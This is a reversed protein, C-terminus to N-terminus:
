AVLPVTVQAPIAMSEIVQETVKTKIDSAILTSSVQKALEEIIPVCVSNGMQRYAPTKTEPLIFTEPFGMLRSCERPTLMRPFDGDQLILNERGDKGYRSTLTNAIGDLNVINHRFGNGKARNRETRAQHSVWLRESITYKPDPHKELIDKVLRNTPTLDEFEFDFDLTAIMYIRRRRQPVKLSADVVKYTFNYGLEELSERVVKLTNGFDHKEFNAVNELFVVSPRHHKVIRLIEFFLNGQKEDDFGHARNLGARASVGARSFPQCPFGACIVDHAPIENADVERIDRMDIDEGFNAKYTSAASLNYENSYVCKMGAREFGLRIGGIGAFLDIFRYDKKQKRM